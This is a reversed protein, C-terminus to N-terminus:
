ISLSYYSLSIQTDLGFNNNKHYSCMSPKMSMNKYLREVTHRHAHKHTSVHIWVRTLCENVQILTYSLTGAKEGIM